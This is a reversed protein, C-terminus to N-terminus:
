MKNSEHLSSEEEEIPEEKIVSSEVQLM